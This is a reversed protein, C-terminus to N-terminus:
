LLQQAAMPLAVESLHDIDIIVIHNYRILDAKSHGNKFLGCFAVVPLMSKSAKYMESDGSRLYGRAERITKAYKRSAFSKLVKDLSYRNAEKGFVSSFLSVECRLVESGAYTGANEM